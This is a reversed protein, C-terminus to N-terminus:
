LRCVSVSMAYQTANKIVHNFDVLLDRASPEKPANGDRERASWQLSVYYAISTDKCFWWTRRHAENMWQDVQGATRKGMKANAANTYPTTLARKKYTYTYIHVWQSISLSLASPLLSPEILQTAMSVTWRRDNFRRDLSQWIRNIPSRTPGDLYTVAWGLHVAPYTCIHRATKLGEERDQVINSNNSDNNKCHRSSFASRSTHWQYANATRQWKTETIAVTAAAPHNVHDCAYPSSLHPHSPAM